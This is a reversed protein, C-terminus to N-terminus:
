KAVTVMEESKNGEADIYSVVFVGALGIIIMIIFLILTKFFHKNVM